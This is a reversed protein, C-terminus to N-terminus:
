IISDESIGIPFVAIIPHKRDDKPMVPRKIRVIKLLLEYLRFYAKHHRAQKKTMTMSGLMKLAEEKHETAVNYDYLRVERLASYPLSEMFERFIIFDPDQGYAAFLIHTEPVIVNRYGQWIKNAAVQDM